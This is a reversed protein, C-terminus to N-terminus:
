VTTPKFLVGAIRIVGVEAPYTDGSNRGITVLVTDGATISFDASEREILTYPNITTVTNFTIPTDTAPLPIGSVTPRPILRYTMYLPPLTQGAAGQGFLRVRIKMKVNSGLNDDPVNLRIRLLSAQGRPFGLYPIDNYLREVTDSLRIIQPSIERDVFPNDFTFNVIGQHLLVNDDTPLSLYDKEIDSLERTRTSNIVVQAQDHVVVGETLWGRKLQHDNVVTKVAQGGFEEASVTQLKLNLELDGTTAPLGDCNLVKVPSGTQPALSTVVRRDNGVLMRLFVVSLRMAENRPCESIATDTTDEPTTTYTAPWPVDGYCRSMWWIGNTDCIALGSRGLPIETAGVYDEGKDFLMAVSQVPLPPWVRSLALHEALNYGFVAGAPAKGNFVPHDAPLWGPLTPDPNTVSHVEQEDETSVFNTGAPRCYLDFRYHTHEDIFDKVHPMVIVSPVDSCNDKPGQVYCVYVSVAPRQQVLKGAEVASLYYRGPAITEGIANTLEPLAVIGRLVIDAQNESKKQYCIGVCDSSPQVVLAQTTEDTTIAALAKEYRQTTYNWFVPHGPLVDPAITAGMDFLARGLEAADLRDKLYDTRDELTRDPRSVVGAQVPEGPNVHKVRHLWNGSM